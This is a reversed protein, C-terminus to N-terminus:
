KQKYRVVIAMEDDSTDETGVSYYIMVITGDDLQVVSPYGCDTNLSTWAVMVRKDSEWTKGSNHSIAAGVGYPKIRNGHVLLLHGNQLLCLDGPHQNPLTVQSPASWNYGGDTSESQQISGDSYTRMMALLRGDPLYALSTENHITASIISFDGWTKGNDTSRLIGSIHKTGEPVKVQGRYDTDYGGYVPMLATGGPLLVIRGYPSGNKIPSYPLLRKESWTKGSDTSRVYYKTYAGVSTDFEGKENYTSAEAYAMVITGDPMQGLAPNRDDFESDVIVAPESWTKGGDESHIWDLRGEIGIHPAGGRVVAGLTGDQLRILVPFYGGGRVAVVREASELRPANLTDEETNINSFCVLLLCLTIDM